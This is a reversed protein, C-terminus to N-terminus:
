KITPLLTPAQCEHVLHFVEIIRQLALNITGQLLIVPVQDMRINSALPLVPHWVEINISSIQLAMAQNKSHELKRIISHNTISGMSDLLFQVQYIQHYQHPVLEM